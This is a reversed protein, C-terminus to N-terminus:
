DDFGPRKFPRAEPIEAETNKIMRVLLEIVPEVSDRKNEPLHKRITKWAELSRDAGILVVKASGYVDDMYEFDAEIKGSVARRLKVSLQFLYWSIVEVADTVEDSNPRIQDILIDWEELWRGGESMYKDASKVCKTEATAKEIREREAMYAAMDFEDFDADGSEPDVDPEEFGNEFEPNAEIESQNEFEGAVCMLSEMFEASDGDNSGDANFADRTCEM